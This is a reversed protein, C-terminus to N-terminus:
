ARLLGVFSAMLARQQSAGWADPDMTARVGIGDTLGVIQDAVDQLPLDPRLEGREVADELIDLVWARNQEYFDHHAERLRTQFGAIGFYSVWVRWERQRTADLPLVSALADVLDAADRAAGYREALRTAVHQLAAELIARKNPFFHMLSGTTCGAIGAVHELKVRDLGYEAVARVACEAIAERRADHDVIKPM